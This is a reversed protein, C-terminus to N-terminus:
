FWMRRAGIEGLDNGIGNREVEDQTQERWGAPIMIHLPAKSIRFLGAHGGQRAHARSPHCPSNGRRGAREAVVFKGRETAVALWLRCGKACCRGGSSRTAFCRPGAGFAAYAPSGQRAAIPLKELFDIRGGEPFISRRKSWCGAVHCTEVLAHIERPSLAM